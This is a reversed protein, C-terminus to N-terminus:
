GILAYINNELVEKSSCWSTSCKRCPMKVIPDQTTKRHGYQYTIIAIPITILCAAIIVRLIIDPQWPSQSSPNSPDSTSPGISSPQISPKSTGPEDVSPIKVSIETFASGEGEFVANNHDFYGTVEQVRFEVSVGDKASLGILGEVGYSFTAVTYDSNSQYVSRHFGMVWEANPTKWWFTYYISINNGNNDIYPTFPRNKITISINGRAIKQGPTGPYPEGTYPDSGGNGPEQVWPNNHVEVSAIEPGAKPHDPVTVPAVCPEVVLFVGLVTLMLILM